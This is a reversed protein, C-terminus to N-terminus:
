NANAATARPAGNAQSRDYLSIYTVNLLILSCTALGFAIWLFVSDLPKGIMVLMMGFCSLSAGVTEFRNKGLKSNRM